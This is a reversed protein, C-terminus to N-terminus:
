ENGAEKMMLSAVAARYAEQKHKPLSGMLSALEIMDASFKKVREEAATIADDLSSFPATPGSYVVKFPVASEAFYVYRITDLAELVHRVDARPINLTPPIFNRVADILHDDIMMRNM